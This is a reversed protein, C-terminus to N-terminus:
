VVGLESANAKSGSDNAISGILTIYRAFLVVVSGVTMASRDAEFGRREVELGNGDAQMVLARAQTAISGGNRRQQRRRFRRKSIRLVPAPKWLVVALGGNGFESKRISIKLKRLIGM